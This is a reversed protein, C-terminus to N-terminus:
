SSPLVRVEASSRRVDNFHLLMMEGEARLKGRDNNSQAIGSTLRACRSTRCKLRQEMDFRVSRGTGDLEAAVPDLAMGVLEIRLGHCNSYAGLGSPLSRFRSMM